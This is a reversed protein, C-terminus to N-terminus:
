QTGFGVHALGAHVLKADALEQLHDVVFENGLVLDGNSPLHSSSGVTWSRDVGSPTARAPPGNRYARGRLV